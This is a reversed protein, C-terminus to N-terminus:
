VETYGCAACIWAQLARNGKLILTEPKECVRVILERDLGDTQDIVPTKPMIDQSCWEPCIGSYKMM